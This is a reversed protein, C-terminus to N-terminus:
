DKYKQSMNVCNRILVRNQKRKVVWCDAENIIFTPMGFDRIDKWEKVYFKKDQGKSYKKFFQWYVIFTVM